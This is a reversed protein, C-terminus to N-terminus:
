FESNVIKGEPVFKKCIVGQKHFLFVLMKKKKDNVRTLLVSQTETIIKNGVGHEALENGSQVSVGLVLKM